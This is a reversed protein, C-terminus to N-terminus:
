RAPELAAGLERSLEPFPTGAAAPRAIIVIDRAPALTFDTRDLVTRVRRRVRNRVVANGVASSVTVGIRTCDRGPAALVVFAGETSRRGRRQVRLFDGRRKLSEWTRMARGRPEAQPHSRSSAEV